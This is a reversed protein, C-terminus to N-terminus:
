AYVGGAGDDVLRHYQDTNSASGNLAASAVLVLNSDFKGIWADVSTAADPARSGAAFVSGSSSPLVEFGYPEFQILSASSLLVLNTDYRAVWSAAGITESTRGVVYVSGGSVRLRGAVDRNNGPGNVSLSSILVLSSDFKAVWIDDGAYTASSAVVGAVFVGGGATDVDVAWAIDSFGAKDYTYSSLLVLSPSFKAVWIDSGSGQTLYGAAYLNGSADQALGNVADAGAGSGAITTTSILPYSASAPLALFLALLAILRSLPNRMMAVM